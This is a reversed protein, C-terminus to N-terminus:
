NLTCDAKRHYGELIIMNEQMNKEEKCRAEAESTSINSYTPETTYLYGYNDSIKCTCTYTPSKEKKKCSVILLPLCLITILTKM